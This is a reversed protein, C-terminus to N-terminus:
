AVTTERADLAASLWDTISAMTSGPTFLESVGAEKLKDIDPGPIIGG